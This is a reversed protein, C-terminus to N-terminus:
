EGGVAFTRGAREGRTDTVTLAHTGPAPRLEIQHYRRTEGLYDGDLDWYLTENGDRHAAEAVLSGPTGDLEIPVFVRSGPEPFVIALENGMRAGERGPLWPPLSRYSLNRKKYWREVAPPLVFRREVLPLDGSRPGVLDDATAQFRGDPTLSVRRCYPCPLGLPAGRPKLAAKTRACDPGALYGSDACVSVIALEIEPTACWASRPLTAFVEFLIPAATTASKLEPRGEGTANGVWVGVTFRPTAGFAWADRNGYSTGTKWAIRQASAYTKWLEEEEPRTGEVLAELTLWAAARSIPFAGDGALTPADPDARRMMTAYARATEELTVEGGGLILPLGYEGAARDLTSFGCRRLVGLFPAIGYDRLERVAPVNLSRSLAEGAPVAGQYSPVNNEPKYSGIRTPVDLVLQDPLMLGSDLMAAYLFPKLVSGSSRRSTVVDVESGRRDARDLGTNGVYALIEGTATDLVIAAANRIGSRELRDSWRNLTSLLTVQFNRDVSARRGVGSAGEAALRDLLHPALRPLPFPKIPLPEALSLELTRGDVIGRASLMHLLRDRKALLAARDAGPHVLSPQNPLVALTAAEAWTLDDPSRNFYRWAAAELGVVNGGFPANAAYLSVIDSKSYRIELLLSLATEIAKQAGTRAQNGLLVRALQMTLTSGGSVVRGARANQRAARAIAAPDVGPHVHFRRDEFEILAARFRDPVARAPLRWQGDSAVRAGLLGGKRDYLAVSLPASPTPLLAVPIFTCLAFALSWALAACENRRRVAFRAACRALRLAM